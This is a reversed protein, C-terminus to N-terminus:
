GPAYGYETLWTLSSETDPHPLYELSVCGDYDLRDIIDFLFPFNIEGTGPQHRGPNDAIQIHGIRHQQTQLTGALEGEARQMHYVDYQLRLNDSDVADMVSLAERSTGLLFGAIDYRNIPELLLMADIEALRKAAYRLNDTLTALQDARPVDTREIGALCNLRRVGLIRAYALAREVGARFETVRDPDAAIGREGADWDGAPLNFLHLVVDAERLATQLAEAELAYPFQIEVTRFGARRAAAVRDLLPHETFLMSLNAILRPM